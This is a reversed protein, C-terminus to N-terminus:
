IGAWGIKNTRRQYRTQGRQASRFIDDDGIQVPNEKMAQSQAQYVAQGLRDYDIIGDATFAYQIAEQVQGSVKASDIKIPEVKYQSTDVSLDLQPANFRISSISNGFDQIDKYIDGFRSTIGNALGLTFFDGIYFLELATNPLNIIENKLNLIMRQMVLVKEQDPLGKVLEKGDQAGFTNGLFEIFRDIGDKYLAAEINYELKYDKGSITIVKYM